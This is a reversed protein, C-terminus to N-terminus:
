AAVWRAFVSWFGSAAAPVWFGAPSLAPFAFPSAACALVPLGRSAAWRASLLSGPSASSGFFVVLASGPVVPLSSVLARSRSALRVSLPLSLPGGALWSVSCGPRWSLSSLLGFPASCRWFGAGSSSGVAFVSLACPLSGARALVLSDVGSACGVAVGRGAAVVRSVASVVLPCSSLSRSGAFGVWSAALM